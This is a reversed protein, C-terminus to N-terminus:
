CFTHVKGISFSGDNTLKIAQSCLDYYIIKLLGAAFIVTCKQFMCYNQLNIEAM